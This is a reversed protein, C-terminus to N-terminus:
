YPRDRGSSGRFGDYDRGYGGRGHGRRGYPGGGRSSFGGGRSGHGRPARFGPPPRIGPFFEKGRDVFVDGGEFTYRDIDGGGRGDYRRSSADAIKDLRRQALEARVPNWYLPPDATTKRFLSDPISLDPPTYKAARDHRPGTATLDDGRPQERYGLSPNGRPQDLPAHRKGAGGVEQLTAVINEDDGEGYVVEWKKSSRPGGGTSQEEAIWQDVKEPPVFDAWLPKRNREDPWIREHVASRVRAAASVSEFLILAHTRITDLYFSTIVAPDPSEGPAAALSILHNQVNQATLPRMFDRIYLASTAPHIAPAVTRDANMSSSDDYSAKRNHTAESGHFLNRFRSDRVRDDLHETDKPRATTSTGTAESVEGMMDMDRQDAVNVAGEGLVDIATDKSATGVANHREVWRVDDNSTAIAEEKPLSDAASAIVIEEMSTDVITPRQEVGSPSVETAGVNISASDVANHKDVWQADDNSIAIPGEDNQRARKSAHSAIASSPPPSQSRRKRKMRDEYVEQPDLSMQSDNRQEHHSSLAPVAIPTEPPAHSESVMPQDASTTPDAIDADNANSVPPAQTPLSTAMQDEQPLSATSLQDTAEEQAADISVTASGDGNAADDGTAINQEKTTRNASSDENGDAEELREVLAVKNGSQPLGRKKLEAKLETVKLKKWDTMNATTSPTSSLEFNRFKSCPCAVLSSTTRDRSILSCPFSGLCSSFAINSAQQEQFTRPYNIFQTILGAWPAGTCIHEFGYVKYPM